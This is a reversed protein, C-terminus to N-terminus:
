SIKGAEGKRKRWVILGAGGLALLGLSGTKPVAKTLQSSRKQGTKISEDPDAWAYDV